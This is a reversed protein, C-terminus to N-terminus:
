LTIRKWSFQHKLTASSNLLPKFIQQTVQSQRFQKSPSKFRASSITQRCPSKDRQSFAQIYSLQRSPSKVGASCDVTYGKSQSFQAFAPKVKCASIENSHNLELQFTNCLSNGRALNDSPHSSEIQVAQQILHSKRFQTCISQRRPSKVKSSSNVQSWSFLTSHGTLRCSSKFRRLQITYQTVKSQLSILCNIPHSSQRRFLHHLPPNPTLPGHEGEGM